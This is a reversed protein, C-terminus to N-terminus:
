SKIHRKEAGSEAVLEECGLPRWKKTKPSMQNVNGGGGRLTRM